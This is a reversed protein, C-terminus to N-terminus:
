PRQKLWGRSPAKTWLTTSFPPFSTSFATQAENCLAADFDSRLLLKVRLDNGVQAVISSALSYLPAESEAKGKTFVIKGQPTGKGFFRASMKQLMKKLLQYHDKGAEKLFSDFYPRGLFVIVATPILWEVGAYMGPEPRSEVRFDLGETSLERGFEAFSPHELSEVYTLGIDPLSPRNM